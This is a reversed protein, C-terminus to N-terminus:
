PFGHMNKKNRWTFVCIFTTSILFFFFNIPFRRKDPVILLNEPGSFMYCTEALLNEDSVRMHITFVRFLLKDLTSLKIRTRSFGSIGQRLLCHLNLDTPKQLWSIQIQVTQWETNSNTDVVRILYVSQSFILLPRPM